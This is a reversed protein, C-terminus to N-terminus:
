PIQLVAIESGKQLTAERGKVLSLTWGAHSEQTKLRVINKTGPELFIGIGDTEGAVAGVLVLAPRQNAVPPPASEVPPPSDNAAPRRSPSFIPRERIASFSAVPVIWLPNLTQTLAQLTLGYRVSTVDTESASKAVPDAVRAPLDPPAMAPGATARRDIGLAQSTASVTGCCGIILGVLAAVRAYSLKSRFFM